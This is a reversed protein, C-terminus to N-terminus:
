KMGFDLFRVIAQKLTKPAAVFDAQIEKMPDGDESRPSAGAADGGGAPTSPRGGRLGAM